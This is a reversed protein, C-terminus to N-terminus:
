WIMATTVFNISGTTVVLDSRYHCISDTRMVLDSRYHCISGTTVVLDSRCHSNSVTTVALDSRYHCLSVTDLTNLPMQDSGSFVRKPLEFTDSIRIKIMFDHKFTSGIM